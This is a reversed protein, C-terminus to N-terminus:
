GSGRLLSDWIKQEFVDEDPKAYGSLYDCISSWLECGMLDSLQDFLIFDMMSDCRRVMWLRIALYFASIFDNIHDKNLSHGIM